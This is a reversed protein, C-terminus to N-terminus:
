DDKNKATNGDNDPTDESDKKHPVIDEPSIRGLPTKDFDSDFSVIELKNQKAAIYQYADDFDLNLDETCSFVDPLDLSDIKIVTVSGNVFLDDIFQLFADKKNLRNLIVGISHLAFDTISLQDSSVYDLFDKVVEAKEQGLLREVWINTDLLYM